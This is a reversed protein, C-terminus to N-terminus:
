AIMVDLFGPQARMSEGWGDFTISDSIRSLPWSKLLTWITVVGENSVAFPTELQPPRATM